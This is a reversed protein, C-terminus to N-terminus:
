RQREAKGKHQECEVAYSIRVVGTLFMQEWLTNKCMISQLPHLLCFSSVRVWMCLCLNTDTWRLCAYVCM